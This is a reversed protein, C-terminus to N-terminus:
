IVSGNERMLEIGCYVILTQLYRTPLTKLFSAIKQKFWNKYCPFCLSYKPGYSKGEM